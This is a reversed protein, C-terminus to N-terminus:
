REIFGYVVTYPPTFKTEIATEQLQKFYIINSFM